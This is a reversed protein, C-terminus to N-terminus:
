FPFTKWGCAPTGDSAGPHEAMSPMLVCGGLVSNAIPLFRDQERPEAAPRAEEAM